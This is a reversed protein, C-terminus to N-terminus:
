ELEKEIDVIEKGIFEESVNLAEQLKDRVRKEGETLGPKGDLYEIQEQIEEKLARFARAVSQAVEKTEKRIKKRWLSIRYWIYFIVAIAGVILVILTIIITLYDIAMKGFKLFPPLGVELPYKETEKSLAGRKDEAQAWIEYNGKELVKEYVLIWKGLVDSKVKELIAEKGIKQIFIRVTIEPLAIGEIKLADGINLNKPIKTIKPAGIPLIEIETFASSFNLAKDFAKVEISHKGPPQPPLKYSEVKLKEAPFPEGEGIRIEYNKIGSLEDSTEFILIPQPDTPDERQVEIEFPLPPATDILVQRHTIKGWGYQNRFKIHFYWIGDELDEYKKSELLGDSIPGPDSTPNKNLLLSVGTVDPPLQWTFEPDNNSYWKEEDPHTPSFIVPAAPPRGPIPAPVYEEKPPIIMRATLNYRGSGLNALINTGKGDAALVAGTIFNVNATVSRRARFNITIIRGAAGSFSAPTGGAFDITGASNSFTPEVPWLTFISGTKSISVVNLENPNFILTGEAANIAVGGSNVKVEISFTSGVIYNGISPLLYLSATQARAALPLVSLVVLVFSLLVLKKLPYSSNNINKYYQTNM